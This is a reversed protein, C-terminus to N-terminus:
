ILTRLSVRGAETPSEDDTRGSLELADQPM